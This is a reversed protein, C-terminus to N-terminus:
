KKRVPRVSMGMYRASEVEIFKSSPIYMMAADSADSHSETHLLSTWYAGQKGQGFQKKAASGAFPLFISNGNRATYLMGDVGNQTTQTVTTNNHLEEWQEYTPTCWKKGWNATAADDKPELYLLGDTYGNIGSEPNTCYKMMESDTGMTYQYNSWEYTDKPKTEGWAFYDGYDEPTNAGVNCTAWLTGSPLGLDVSQHKKHPKGINLCGVTVFAMATLMFAALVKTTKNM